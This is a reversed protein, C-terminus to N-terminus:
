LALKLSQNQLQVIYMKNPPLYIHSSSGVYYLVGDMTYIKVNEVEGNEIELYGDKYKFKYNGEDAPYSVSSDEKELINTFFTGWKSHRYVDVCGKPVYLTNTPIPFNNEEQLTPPNKFDTSVEKLSECGMFAREGIFGVNKLDINKLSKCNYFANFRIIHNNPSLNVKSLNICDEFCHEVINISFNNQPFSVETLGVCGSFASNIIRTIRDPIDYKGKRGGPYCILTSGSDAFLIGDDSIFNENGEEVFINELRECHAFMSEYYYKLSKPLTISTLSACNYFADSGIYTVSSPIIFDTLSVCDKFARHDIVALGDPVDVKYLAECGEFVYPPLEKITAPITVSTLQKCNKFAGWALKVVKFTTNNLLTFSSPITLHDSPSPSCRIVTALDSDSSVQYEFVGDSVFSEYAKVQLSTLTLLMLLTLQLKKM